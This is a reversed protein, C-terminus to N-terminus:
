HTPESDMVKMPRTKVQLFHWFNALGRAKFFLGFGFLLQVAMRILRMWSSATLSSITIRGHFFVATALSEFLEPITFALVLVGVAAFAISQADRSSLQDQTDDPADGPVLREALSNARLILFFGFAILVLTSVFFGLAMMKVTIPPTNLLQLPALFPFCRQFTPVALIFCFVGAIKLLLAALRRNPNMM